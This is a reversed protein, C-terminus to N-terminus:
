LTEGICVAEIALWDSRADLMAEGGQRIMRQLIERKQALVQGTKRENIASAVNNQAEELKQVMTKLM